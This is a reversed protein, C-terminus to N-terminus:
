HLPRLIRRVTFNGVGRGHHIGGKVAHRFHFGVLIRSLGNEEQAQTFSRYQRYVPSSGGCASEGPLMLSCLRFSVSDEKFFSRLVEAAAGGAISHGSDHDPNPPTPVLPKWTPDAVTNPNGDTDAARIATEPRWFNDHYKVYWSGIYADAIAVNLLAFLRANEWLDLASSASVAQAIRNWQFTSNELWFLAIETQEHTRLSPTTV